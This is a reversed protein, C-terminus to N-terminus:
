FYDTENDGIWFIKQVVSSINIHSQKAGGMSFPRPSAIVFLFFVECHHNPNLISSAHYLICSERYVICSEPIFESHCLIRM